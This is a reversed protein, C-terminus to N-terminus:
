LEKIDLKKVGELFSDVESKLFWMKAGRRGGGIPYPFIGDNVWKILTGPAINLM